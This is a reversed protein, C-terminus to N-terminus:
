QLYIATVRADPNSGTSEFVLLFRVGQQDYTRTIRDGTPTHEITEAGATVLTGLRSAVQSASDGIHVETDNPLLLLSVSVVRPPVTAPPVPPAPEHAIVPTGSSVSRFERVAFVGASTVGVVLAVALAWEIASAVRIRTGEM